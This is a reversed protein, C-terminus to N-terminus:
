MAKIMSIKCNLRLYYIRMNLFYKKVIRIIVSIGAGYKKLYCLCVTFGLINGHMKNEGKERKCINTFNFPGSICFEISILQV